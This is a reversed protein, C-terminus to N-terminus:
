RPLQDDDGDRRAGPSFRETFERVGPYNAWADADSKARAEREADIDDVVRHRLSSAVFWLGVAVVVVVAVLLLMIAIKMSSQAAQVWFESLDPVISLM